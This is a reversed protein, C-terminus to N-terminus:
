VISKCAAKSIVFSHAEKFDKRLASPVKYIACLRAFIAVNSEVDADWVNANVKSGTLEQEINLLNRPSFCVVGITSSTDRISFLHASDDMKWSMSLELMLETQVSKSKMKGTLHISYAIM